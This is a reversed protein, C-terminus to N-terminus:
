ASVPEVPHGEVAAPAQLSLGCNMCKRALSNHWRPFKARVFFKEGCRPCASAFSALLFIMAGAWVIVMLVILPATFVELALGSGHVAAITMMAVIAVFALMFAVVMHQKSRLDALGAMEPVALKTEGGDM